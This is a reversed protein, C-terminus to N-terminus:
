GAAVPTRTTRRFSPSVLVGALLLAHGLLAVAAFPTGARVWLSLLAVMGIALYGVAAANVIERLQAPLTTLAALCCVTVSVLPLLLVRQGTLERMPVGDIDLTAAICVLAGGIALLIIQVETPRRWGRGGRLLGRHGLEVLVVILTGVGLLILGYWTPSVADNESVGPIGLLIVAWTLFLVSLATAVGLAVTSVPPWILSAGVLVVFAAIGLGFGDLPASPLNSSNPLFWLYEIRWYLVGWAVAAVGFAVYVPWWLRTAAVPGSQVSEAVAVEEEAAREEPETRPPEVAVPALAGEVVDVRVPVEVDGIPSALVLRAQHSGAEPASGWVRVAAGDIEAQLWTVDSTANAALALPAGSLSLGGDVQHGPPVPGLELTDPSVRLQGDLLAASAVDSVRRSDDDVMGSLANWAALARGLDDGMLRDRLEFAVGLRTAALSSAAADALEAPLAEATVRRRRSRALLLDGESGFSWLHPTQHSTSRRVREAVYTFLENLGVWGDGDRDAEGSSLGEVVSGTFVSPAVQSGPTLEGGEFAYEVSSSATVVVRGRGGAARQAAFADGVEVASSGRVVMGRPFAGGYCCDLFLAIRQARSDAMQQNVFDAAVATSALRLPKTDAAALFLEGAANKLGHCSFHLFLLDDLRRDAFFDEVAVRIDQASGNRVTRVNFDGIRPDALVEGLMEADRHPARLRSLGEDVYDDVAVILAERGTSV